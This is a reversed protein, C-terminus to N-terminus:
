MSREVLGLGAQKEENVRTKIAGYIGLEKYAEIMARIKIHELRCVSPIVSFPDGTIEYMAGLCQGQCLNKIMCSECQPLTKHDFAVEAIALEPNESEIEIVKGDKVKFHGLTFEDYSQRHCPVIALDGLRVYLCSQLSCGVGRGITTLCNSLINYGRRRFVFDLYNSVGSKCPNKFTWKILFKLFNAYEKLQLKSWEVNRVELLYVGDFPIDFKKFMSQFWLFNDEWKEILESYIMPHFGFGYRKNFRFCEDYYADDRRDVKGKMPRNGECFKGDFSASLHIPINSQAYGILSEVRDTLIDDLLFTYNTPIVIAKPKKEADHFKSLIMYLAEFGVDQFFPEGSFFDIDPAYEHSVMWNLLSELNDLIIKTDSIKDPYLERGHKTYYCYKCSLNCKSNLILEIRRFNEYREGNTVWGKFFTREFFSNLLKNNETKFSM